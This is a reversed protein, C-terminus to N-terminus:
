TTSLRYLGVSSSYAMYYEAAGAEAVHMQRNQELIGM